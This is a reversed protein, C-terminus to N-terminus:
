ALNPTNTDFNYLTDDVIKWSIPIRGDICANASLESLVSYSFDLGPAGNPNWVNSSSSGTGYRQCGDGIFLPLSSSVGNISVIM